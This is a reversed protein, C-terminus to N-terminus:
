RELGRDTIRQKFFKEPNLLKEYQELKGRLQSIDQRKKRIEQELKAVDGTLQKYARYDVNQGYEYVKNRITEILRGLAKNQKEAWKERGFLPPVELRPITRLEEPLLPAPEYDYHLARDVRGYFERVSDHTATSGKVGRELGFSSFMARGYDEQLKSLSRRDGMVSKASLRGQATIPVVVCHIHPTREDMHVAFEMVNRAGYRDCVFKWNEMTWQELRGDMEIRKMDEHSGTLVINLHTVADKRVATNGTYGEAIRDRIREQLSRTDPERVICPGNGNDRVHYNLNSRAPDANPVNKTRDIHRGLGAAKGATGKEIHIVAFGM